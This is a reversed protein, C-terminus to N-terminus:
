MLSIWIQVKAIEQKLLKYKSALSDVAAVESNQTSM